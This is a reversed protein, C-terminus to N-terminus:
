RYWMWGALRLALWCTWAQLPNAGHSGHQALKRWIRDSRWRSYRRTRYCYDHVVGAVDVRSWRVVWAFCQPISSFDTSFGRPVCISTDDVTVWLHQSLERRGDHIRRTVLESVHTRERTM